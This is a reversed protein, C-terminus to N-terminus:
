IGKIPSDEFYSCHVSYEGLFKGLRNKIEVLKERCAEAVDARHINVSVGLKGEGSGTKIEMVLDYSNYVIKKRRSFWREVEEGRRRKFGVDGLHPQNLEAWFKDLPFSETLQQLIEGSYVNMIDTHVSSVVTAGLEIVTQRQRERSPSKIDLYKKVYERPILLTDALEYVVEVPFEVNDGEAIGRLEQIARANVERTQLAAAGSLVTELDSKKIFETM